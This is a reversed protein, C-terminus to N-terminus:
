LIDSLYPVSHPAVPSFALTLLFLKVRCLLWPMIVLHSPLSVPVLPVAPTIYPIVRLYSLPPSICFLLRSGQWCTFFFSFLLHFRCLLSTSFCLSDFLLHQCLLPHYLTWKFPSVSESCLPLVPLWTYACSWDFPRLILPHSSSILNTGKLKLWVRSLPCWRIVSCQSNPADFNKLINGIYLCIIMCNTRSRCVFQSSNGPNAKINILVLFILASESFRVKGGLENSRWLFIWNM